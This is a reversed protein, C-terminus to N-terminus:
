GEVRRVRVKRGERWGFERYYQWPEVEAAEVDPHDILYAVADFREALIAAQGDRMMEHAINSECDAILEQLGGAGPAAIWAQRATDLAEIGRSADLQLRSLHALGEWQSPDADVAAIALDLATKTNGEISAHRSKALLSMAQIGKGYRGRMARATSLIQELRALQVPLFAGMDFTMHRRVMAAEAAVEV